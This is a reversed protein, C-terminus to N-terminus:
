VLLHIIEAIRRGTLRVGGVEDRLVHHGAGRRTVRPDLITELALLAHGIRAVAVVPVRVTAHHDLAIALETVGAGPVADDLGAVAAPAIRVAPVHHVDVALQLPHAGRK